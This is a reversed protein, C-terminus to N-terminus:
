RTASRAASAPPRDLLADLEDLVLPWVPQWPGDHSIRPFVRLVAGPQRALAARTLEAPVNHDRAGALHLQVIAAPLPPATAPDLSGRLPEFGHLAAWAGVDLNGALTVVARVGDLRTALLMAITGGGSHGLLVLPRGAPRVREIAAAMSDVVEESYRGGTLLRSNCLSAAHYCPRGVYVRPARDLTMLRLM